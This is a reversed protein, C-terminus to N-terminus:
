EFEGITNFFVDLAHQRRSRKELFEAEVVDPRDVTVIKVRQHWCQLVQLLKLPRLEQMDDRALPLAVLQGLGVWDEVM